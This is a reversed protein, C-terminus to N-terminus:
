PLRDDKPNDEFRLKNSLGLILSFYSYLKITIKDCHEQGTLRTM